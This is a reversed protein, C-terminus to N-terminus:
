SHFKEYFKIYFKAQFKKRFKRLSKNHPSKRFNLAKNEACSPIQASKLNLALTAFNLTSKRGPNKVRPASYPAVLSHVAFGVSARNRMAFGASTPYFKLNRVSMFNLEATADQFKFNRKLPAPAFNIAGGRATNNACERVRNSIFNLASKSNFNEALESISNKM